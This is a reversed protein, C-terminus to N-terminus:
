LRLVQDLISAPVMDLRPVIANAISGQTVVDIIDGLLKPVWLMAVTAIILFLYPVIAQWRYRGLYRISRGLTRRDVRRQRNGMRTAQM